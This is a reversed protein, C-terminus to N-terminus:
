MFVQVAEVKGDKVMALKYGQSQLCLVWRVFKLSLLVTDTQNRATAMGAKVEELLAHDEAGLQLQVRKSLPERLHATGLIPGPAPLPQRPERNQPKESPGSPAPALASKAM